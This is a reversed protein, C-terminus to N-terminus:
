KGEKKTALIKYNELEESLNIRINYLESKLYFDCLNALNGLLLVDIYTPRVKLEPNKDIFNDLILLADRRYEEKAESPYSHLAEFAVGQMVSDMIHFRTDPFKLREYLAEIFAGEFALYDIRKWYRQEQMKIGVFEYKRHMGVSITMGYNRPTSFSITYM